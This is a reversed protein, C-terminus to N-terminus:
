KKAKADEPLSYIVKGNEDLFELTAKGEATVNMNIRPKGKADSMTLSSSKGRGKGISLRNVLFEGNDKMKQYAEKQAAENPLKKIADMKATRTASDTNEDNFVLGAWYGQKNELHQLAITQDGRFRDFTLSRYNEGSELAKFILGGVENDKEDFFLIGASDRTRDFLKGDYMGPHQRDKNSIVMRLKGDDDKVNIRKVDIEDFKQKKDSSFGLLFMCGGVLVIVVCFAQLRFIKKELESQKDTM